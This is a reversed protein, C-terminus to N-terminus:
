IILRLRARVVDSWSLTALGNYEKDHNETTYESKPIKWFTFKYGRNLPDNVKHGIVSYYNYIFGNDKLLKHKLDIIDDVREIGHLGGDTMIADFYQGGYMNYICNWTSLNFIDGQISGDLGLTLYEGNFSTDGIEEDSFGVFLWM